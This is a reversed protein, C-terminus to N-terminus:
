YSHSNREFFMHLTQSCRSPKNHCCYRITQLFLHPHYIARSNAYSIHHVFVLEQYDINMCLEQHRMLSQLLKIYALGQVLATNTETTLSRIYSSFPEISLWYEHVTAWLGHPSSIRSCFFQIRQRMHKALLYEM